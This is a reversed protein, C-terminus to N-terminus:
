SKVRGGNRCKEMGRMRGNDGRGGMRERESERCKKVMEGGEEGEGEGRGEETPWVGGM